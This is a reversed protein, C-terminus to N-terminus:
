EDDIVEYSVLYDLDDFIDFLQSMDNAEITYTDVCLDDFELYVVSYGADKFEQIVIRPKSM